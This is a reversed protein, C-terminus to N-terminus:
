MCEGESAVRVGEENACAESTYSIGDCGCVPSLVPSCDREAYRCGGFGDCGEGTCVTYEPCDSDLYCTRRTGEPPPECLRPKSADYCEGYLACCLQGEPCQGDAGCSIRDTPEDVGELIPEGCGGRHHSVRVGVACAAQSSEYTVGDCGCVRCDGPGGGCSGCNNRAVCHGVGGCGFAENHCFQNAACDANSVCPVLSPDRPEHDDPVECVEPETRPNFCTHNAFCCIEGSACRLGGCLSVTNDPGFSAGGGDGSSAGMGGSGGGAAGSAGGSGADNRTASACAICNLAIVVFLGLEHMRHM